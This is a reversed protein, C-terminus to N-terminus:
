RSLQEEPRFFTQAFSQVGPSTVSTGTEKSSPADAVPLKIPVLFIGWPLGPRPLWPPRPAALSGPEPRPEGVEWHTVNAQKRHRNGPGLIPGLDFNTCLRHKLNAAGCLLPGGPHSPQSPLPTQTSSTHSGYCIGPVSQDPGGGWHRSHFRLRGAM